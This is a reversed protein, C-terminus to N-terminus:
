VINTIQQSKELPYNQMAVNDIVKRALIEIPIRMFDSRLNHREASIPM